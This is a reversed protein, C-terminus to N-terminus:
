NLMIGGVFVQLFRVRVQESLSWYRLGRVGILELRVLVLDDGDIPRVFVDGM